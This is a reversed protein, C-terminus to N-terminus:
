CAPPARGRIALPVDSPRLVADVRAFETGQELLTEPKALVVPQADLTLFDCLPCEDASHVVPWDSEHSHGNVEAPAAKAADEHGSCSCSSTAAVQIPEPTEHSCHSHDHTHLAAAAMALVYGALSFAAIFRRAIM